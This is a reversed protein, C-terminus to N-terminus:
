ASEDDLELPHNSTCYRRVAKWSVPTELDEVTEGEEVVRLEGGCKPCPDPLVRERTPSEM